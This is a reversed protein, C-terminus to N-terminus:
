YRVILANCDACQLLSDLQNKLRAIENNKEALETDRSEIPHFIVRNVQPIECDVLENFSHHEVFVVVSNTTPEITVGRFEADAPIGHSVRFTAGNLLMLSLQKQTVVFRRIKSM